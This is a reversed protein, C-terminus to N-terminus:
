KEDLEEADREREAGRRRQREGGSGGSLAIVDGTWSERGQERMWDMYQTHHAWYHAMYATVPFLPETPLDSRHYELQAMLLKLDIEAIVHPPPSEPRPHRAVPTTPSSPADRKTLKETRV